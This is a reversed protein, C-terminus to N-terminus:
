WSQPPRPRARAFSNAPLEAGLLFFRGPTPAALRRGSGALPEVTSRLGAPLYFDSFPHTTMMHLVEAKSAAVITTGVPEASDLGWARLRELFRPQWSELDDFQEARIVIGLYVYHPAYRLGVGAPDVYCYRVKPLALVSAYFEDDPNVAILENPRGLGAYWDLARAAPLPAGGGYSLGWVQHPFAAKVCLAGVLAACALRQRKSAALPAYGAAALCLPPILYLLYPLNHYRFALLAAACVLLWSVLLLAEIQKRRAARVLMPMAALALLLLLPDMRFLRQAYFAAASEPTPQVPPRLGFKLLQIGVYDTWFWRPHVVGQYLHWPAAFLIVLAVARAVRAFAPRSGPPALLCFVGLILLPLLGAANKAMIGLATSLAFLLLSRRRELCPDRLLVFSAGALALALLMDTYCLRALMHWLPDALLLLGALAGAWPSRARAAWLILLVTALTGALLVPLRLALTSEGLLRLSLGALWILLPPKVLLYRGLVKPTLWGGHSALGLAGSAYTTEDQARFGSVPDIFASALGAKGLGFGLLVLVIGFLCAIRLTLGKM